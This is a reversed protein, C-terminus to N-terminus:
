DAHEPGATLTRTRSSPGAGRVRPLVYPTIYPLVPVVRERPDPRGRFGPASVAYSPFRGTSLNIRGARRWEGEDDKLIGAFIEPPAIRECTVLVGITPHTSSLVTVTEALMPLPLGLARLLPAFVHEGATGPVEVIVNSYLTVISGDTRWGLFPGVGSWVCFAFGLLSAALVAAAGAAGLDAAAAARAERQARSGMRLLVSGPPFEECEPSLALHVM